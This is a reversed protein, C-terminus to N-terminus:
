ANKSVMMDQHLSEISETLFNLLDIRLGSLRNIYDSGHKNAIAGIAMSERVPIRQIPIVGAFLCADRIAKNANEDEISSWMLYRKVERINVIKNALQSAYLTVQGIGKAVHSYGKLGDKAEIVSVSGDFHSIVIDARGYQLSYEAVITDAPNLNEIEPSNNNILNHKELKVLIKEGEYRCEYAGAGLLDNYYTESSCRELSNRIIRLLSIADYSNIEKAVDIRNVINELALCEIEVENRDVIKPVNM